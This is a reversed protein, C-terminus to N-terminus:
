ISLDIGPEAYAAGGRALAGGGQKLRCVSATQRREHLTFM